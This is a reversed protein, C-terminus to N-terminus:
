SIGFAPPYRLEGELRGLAGAKLELAMFAPGSFPSRLGRTLDASFGFRPYYDPHGVVVVIQEGLDRLVRIGEMVLASGVQRRQYEPRVALPALAVADVDARPTRVILRTFLVHGVIRGSSVAVLSAVVSGDARLRDVLDAEDARDFALENVAHVAEQDSAAEARIEINPNKV